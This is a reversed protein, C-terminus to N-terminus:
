KKVGEDEDEDDDGFLFDWLAIAANVVGVKLEAAHVPTSFIVVWACLWIFKMKNVSIEM